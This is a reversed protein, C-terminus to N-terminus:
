RGKGEKDEAALARRKYLDRVDLKFGRGTSAKYRGAQVTVTVRAGTEREATSLAETLEAIVEGITLAELAEKRAQDAVSRFQAVLSELDGDGISGDEFCLQPANAKIWERALKEIDM